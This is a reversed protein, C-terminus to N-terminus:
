LTVIYNSAIDVLILQRAAGQDRPDFPRILWPM